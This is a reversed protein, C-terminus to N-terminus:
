RISASAVTPVRVAPVNTSIQKATNDLLDPFASVHIGKPFFITNMHTTRCFNIKMQSSCSINGILEMSALRVMEVLIATVNM